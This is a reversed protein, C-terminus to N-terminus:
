KNGRMKFYVYNRGLAGRGWDSMREVTIVWVTTGM